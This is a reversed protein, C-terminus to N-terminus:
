ARAENRTQTLFQDVLLDTFERPVPQGTVLVRYYIPGVLQDVAAEVDMDRPLEGREIARQLPIRDRTRQESLYDTRFRDAVRPDHQAQGTLARFVAGADSRALFEACNSLHARLDCGLEGHDPPTLKQAADELFADMLIDAKSTWWRYITQKSVSARAAIGEITFGLFGSEALLDDAAELVARRAAESRRHRNGRHRGHPLGSFGTEKHSPLRSEVLLTIRWPERLKLTLAQVPEM